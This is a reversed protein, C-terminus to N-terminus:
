VKEKGEKGAGGLAKRAKSALIKFVLSPVVNRLLIAAKADLPAFVVEQKGAAAARFIRLALDSPDLGKATTDDMQAYKEGQGTLANLSLDTRIYGPFVATVPISEPSLEARLSDFYGTLAHKSAAYSTRLGLGLKGQVSNVVILHPARSPSQRLSPLALKTLAMPGFFNTAMVSLDVNLTTDAASSRTSVGANNILIDLGGMTHTVAAVATAFSEDNYRAMDLPQVLVRTSSSSSSTSSPAIALCEKKVDELKGVSRASLVVRAGRRAAEIAMARGLGSSAGTIWIVKDDLFADLSPGSSFSFLNGMVILHSKAARTAPSPPPRRYFPLTPSIPSPSNIHSSLLSLILLNFLFPTTNSYQVHAEHQEAQARPSLSQAFALM